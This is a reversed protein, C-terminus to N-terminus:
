EGLGAAFHAAFAPAVPSVARSDTLRLPNGDDYFGMSILLATNGRNKSVSNLAPRAACGAVMTASGASSAAVSERM